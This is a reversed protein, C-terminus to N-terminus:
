VKVRVDGKPKANKIIDVLITTGEIEPGRKKLKVTNKSKKKISKEVILTLQILASIEM